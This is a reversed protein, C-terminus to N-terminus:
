STEVVGEPIFHSNYTHISLFLYNYIYYYIYLLLVHKRIVAQLALISDSVISMSRVSRAIEESIIPAILVLCKHARIAVIDYVV